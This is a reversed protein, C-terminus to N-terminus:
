KRLRLVRACKSRTIAPRKVGVITRPSKTQIDCDRNGSDLKRKVGAIRSSPVVPTIDGDGGRARLVRKQDNSRLFHSTDKNDNDVKKNRISKVEQTLDATKFAVKREMMEIKANLEQCRKEVDM